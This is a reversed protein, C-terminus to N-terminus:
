RQRSQMFPARKVRGTVIAERMVYRAQDAEEITVLVLHTGGSILPEIASIRLSNAQCLSLVQQEDLSVNMARTIKPIEM